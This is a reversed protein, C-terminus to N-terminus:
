EEPRHNQSESSQNKSGFQLQFRETPHYKIGRGRGSVTFYGQAALDRMMELAKGRSLSEPQKLDQLTFFGKKELAETVWGLGALGIAEGEHTLVRYAKGHKKLPQAIGRQVLDKIEGYATDRDVGFKQYDSSNFIMGHVRAYALIHKQRSNLPQGGFKQLWDRTGEDFIPTNRLALCFFHGEERLEPPNLGHHDMERFIQSLGEGLARMIGADILVRTIIPNRSYHINERRLLQQIRVPGPLNGPSRVELRDDFMWVEVANGELRYDRHAIANIVAEKWAFSLYEFKERYFLDQLVIREKIRGGIVTEVEGMLRLIPAEIRIREAVNYESGNGKEKGEFRVFEVGPRPHWRLPDKGFLYAAARTLVPQGDRYEILGYARHLIEETGGQAGSRQIFEAVLDRDLDELSSKLFFEREHASEAKAERLAVMRERSIPLNQGGVRLYGKGNRLLHVLPSAKVRIPLVRGAREGPPIELRLPPVAEKELGRFLLQCNKEDLFSEPAEGQTEAGLYVVGGDANAMASLSQAVAEVIAKLTRRQWKGTVSKRYCSVFDTFQGPGNEQLQLWEGEKM